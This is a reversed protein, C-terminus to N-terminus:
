LTGLTAANGSHPGSRSSGPFIYSGTGLKLAVLRFSNRWTPAADLGAARESKGQVCLKLAKLAEAQARDHQDLLMLVMALRRYLLPEDVSHQTEAVTEIADELLGLAQDPHGTLARVAGVSSALRPFWIRLSWRNCVELGKEYDLIARAFDRQRLYVHGQGWQAFVISLPHGAQEALAVAEGAYRLGKAFEGLEACCHSLWSRCIVAPLAAIGMRDLEFEPGILTLGKELETIAERYMALQYLPQALRYSMEAKLAFSESRQAFEIARRGHEIAKEQECTLYYHNSLFGELQGTRAPDDLAAILAQTESLLRGIREVQGLNLLALRLLFRIDVALKLSERTEPLRELAKLAQDLYEVAERNASRDYSKTGADFSYRVAKDWVAGRFAHHALQEVHETESREFIREMAQLIQSHMSRRRERPLTRYAVQYTQAHKFTYEREPYLKTEYVFESSQLQSLGSRLTVEPLDIADQLM